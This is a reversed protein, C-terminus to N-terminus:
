HYISSSPFENPRIDWCVAAKHPAYHCMLFLLFILFITIVIECAATSMEAIHQLLSIAHYVVIKQM